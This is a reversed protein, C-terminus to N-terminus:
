SVENWYCFVTLSNSFTLRLLCFIEAQLPLSYKYLQHNITPSVNPFKGEANFYIFTWPLFYIAKWKFRTSPPTYPNPSLFTVFLAFEIYWIYFNCSFCLRSLHIMTNHIGLSPTVTIALLICRQVTVTDIPTGWQWLLFTIHSFAENLGSWTLCM